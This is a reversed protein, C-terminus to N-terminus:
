VSRHSPSFLSGLRQRAPAVKRAANALSELYAARWKESFSPRIAKGGFIQAREAEIESEIRALEERFPLAVPKVFVAKALAWVAVVPTIWGIILFLLRLDKDYVSTKALVYVILFIIIYAALLVSLVSLIM